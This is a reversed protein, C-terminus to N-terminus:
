ISFTWQIHSENSCSTHMQDGVKLPAPRNDNLVLPDYEEASMVDLFVVGQDLVVSIVNNFPLGPLLFPWVAMIAQKWRVRSSTSHCPMVGHIQKMKDVQM